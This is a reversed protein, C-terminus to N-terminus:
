KTAEKRAAPKDAPATTPPLPSWKDGEKLEALFWRWFDANERKGEIPLGDKRELNKNMTFSTDGILVFKGKGLRRFMIVPHLKDITRRQGNAITRAEQPPGTYSIPWSSFYRVYAQTKGNQTQVYPVKFHGMPQPEPNKLGISELGVHFDFEALLSSSPGRQEYGVACIFIGGDRVFDKVIERESETFERAPAVSVVVGAREIRERTFKPLNLVLYGDRMLTQNLGMMGEPRWSEASFAEMHTTDIYALNNPKQRRGDPIVTAANYTAETCFVLVAALTVSALATRLPKGSWLLLAILGGALLIGLFQRDIGQPSSTRSALYGYLRSTYHHSGITIGNTFSSTDGFAIIRGQGYNEEAALVVDGLKEGPDYKGNGMMSAHGTEGPDAWGWRGILLPTSLWGTKVSAGIVSGFRNREDDIGATTPHATTQYSHLWGGVAFQASDFEVRMSTNELLENFRNESLNFKNEPDKYMSTHEGLILMSGGNEVYQMIRNLQGPKWPDNPYIMMLLDAGALQEDTIDPTKSPEKHFKADSITTDSFGRVKKFEAGLSEFYDGSMGYMGIGLRGYGKRDPRLWNLYGDESAVINKGELSLSDTSLTTTIALGAALAVCSCGILWGIWMSNPKAAHSADPQRDPQPMWRMAVGAITLHILAGIAPANWPLCNALLGSITWPAEPQVGPRAPPLPAEAAIRLLTAKLAPAFSLLILYVMHGVIIALIVFGASSGKAHRGSLMWAGFFVSTLVLFDLGSFTAGVWLPQGSITGAAQGLFGGIRDTLTWFVAIKLALRYIGLVALAIAASVAVKRSAGSLSNAIAATLVAMALVNVSALPSSNMAIAAIVGAITITWSDLSRPKDPRAALVVIAGGLLTLTHRLPHALLGAAGSAIWGASMAALVMVVTSWPIATASQLADDPTSIAEKSNAKSGV